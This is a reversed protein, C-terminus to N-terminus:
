RPRSLGTCMRYMKGRLTWQTLLRTSFMMTKHRYKTQWTTSCFEFNIFIDHNDDRHSCPLSAGSIRYVSHSLSPESRCPVYVIMTPVTDMAIDFLDVAPIRDKNQVRLWDGNQTCVGNRFISSNSCKERQWLTSVTPVFGTSRLSSDNSQFHM